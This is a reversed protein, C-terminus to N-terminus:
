NWTPHYFIMAIFLKNGYTETLTLNSYSVQLSWWYKFFPVVYSLSLTIFFLTLLDIKFNLCVSCKLFVLDGTKLNTQLLNQKKTIPIDKLSM